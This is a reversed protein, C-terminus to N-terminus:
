GVRVWAASDAPLTGPTTEASAVLVEAGALRHGAPLSVAASTTNVLVTLAGRTVGLVGEPLDEEFVVPQEPRGLTLERRLGLATRYMELTSGEVGQQADAALPGFEAPQPLWSEGTSSFGFAPADQEWPLPVRCGDRGPVGARLHSPDERLEDPIDSVEPLGLEEGQYLYASGPLSLMLLTAARARRLGLEADPVEDRRLGEGFHYDPAFGYRSAHRIVDHNSLVWTTPSGVADALALPKEIAARMTEVGWRAQLFGFNFSQHAKEDGIYLPLRHEPIWAELVMMREGEYSDLIPRWERYIDLVGDNDFYVPVEGEPIDILGEANVTADPLGEPKIMGHAVDVRFGDAGRDLWFRLVDQFLEHVRPNEWNWDPQSTDFIHLYWQGPTGDAETVRTWAPGHFISTWNNPPLEGDTGTGEAFMYMDREPSGPAAALAQQFLVHDCSSHNPVIDVIVKLGLEHARTIMEDADALSGFRPDVDTYDAVDYGGDHQPSTYFPSLWIADVGLDRLYPLRATVGPLDGMGDGDSDAFSRPYVQYVVADRWWQQAERTEHEAAQPTAPTHLTM